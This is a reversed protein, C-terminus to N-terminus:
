EKIPNWENALSSCFRMTHLQDLTTNCLHFWNRKITPNSFEICHIGALNMEKVEWHHQEILEKGTALRLTQLKKKPM